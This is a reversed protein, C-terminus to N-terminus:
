AKGTRIKKFLYYVIPVIIVVSTVVMSTHDDTHRAYLSDSLKTLAILAGIAVIIGVYIVFNHDAKGQYDRGKDAKTSVRWSMDGVKVRKNHRIKMIMILILFGIIISVVPHRGIFDTVFDM